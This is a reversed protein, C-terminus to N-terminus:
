LYVKIGEVKNKIKLEININKPPNPIESKVKINGIAITKAGNKRAAARIRGGIKNPIDKVTDNGPNAKNILIIIIVFLCFSILRQFHTNCTNSCNIGTIPMISRTYTVFLYQFLPFTSAISVATKAQINTIKPKTFLTIIYTVADM